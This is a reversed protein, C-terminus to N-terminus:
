GYTRLALALLVGVTMLGVLRLTPASSPAFVADRIFAIVLTICGTPVVVERPDHETPRPAANSM